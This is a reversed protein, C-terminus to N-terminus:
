RGAGDISDIQEIRDAIQQFLSRYLGYRSMGLRQLTQEDAGSVSRLTAAIRQVAHPTVEQSTGLLLEVAERLPDDSSLRVVAEVFQGDPPQLIVTSMQKVYEATREIRELRLDQLLKEDKPRAACSPSSRELSSGFKARISGGLSLLWHSPTSDLRYLRDDTIVDLQVHEMTAIKTGLQPMSKGYSYRILAEPLAVQVALSLLMAAGTCQTEYRDGRVLHALDDFSPEALGHWGLHRPRPRAIYRSYKRLAQEVGRLTLNQDDNIEQALAPLHMRELNEALQSRRSPMIPVLAPNYADGEAKTFHFTRGSDEPGDLLDYGEVYPMSDASIADKLTLSMDVAGGSVPDYPDVMELLRTAIARTPFHRTAFRALERHGIRNFQIGPATTRSTRYVPRTTSTAITTVAPAPERGVGRTAKGHSLAVPFPNSSDPFRLNPLSGEPMPTLDELGLGAMECLISYTIAEQLYLGVTDDYLEDVSAELAQQYAVDYPIADKSARWIDHFMRGMSWAWRSSVLVDRNAYVAQSGLGADGAINEWGPGVKRRGQCRLDEELQERSYTKMGKPDEAAASLQTVEWLRDYPSPRSAARDTVTADDIRYLGKRWETGLATRDTHLQWEPVQESGVLRHRLAAKQALQEHPDLPREVPAHDSVDLHAIVQYISQQKFKEHLLSTIETRQASRANITAEQLGDLGQTRLIEYSWILGDEGLEPDVAVNHYGHWTSGIIGHPAQTTPWMGWRIFASGVDFVRRYDDPLKENIQTVMEDFRAQHEGGQPYEMAKVFQEGNGVPHEGKEM